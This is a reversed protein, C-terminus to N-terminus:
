PEAVVEVGKIRPPSAVTVAALIKPDPHVVDTVMDHVHMGKGEGCGEEGVTVSTLPSDEVSVSVFVPSYERKGISMFYLDPSYLDSSDRGSPRSRFYRLSRPM